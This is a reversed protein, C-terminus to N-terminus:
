GEGEGRCRWLRFGKGQAVLEFVEELGPTAPQEVELVFLSEDRRLLTRWDPPIAPDSRFRRPYLLVFFHTFALAPRLERGAVFHVEAGDPVHERVARFLEYEWGVPLGGEREWRALEREIRAEEGLTLAARLEAPEAQAQERGLEIAAAGARWLVFLVLLAHLAARM